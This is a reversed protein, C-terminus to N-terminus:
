AQQYTAMLDAKDADDVALAYVWAQEQRGDILTVTVQTRVYGEGEFDDLAQWHNPLNESKFLYGQVVQGQEDPIIAPYGEAAGWGQPILVGTISAAEFSGGINALWHHNSRNPALTGYVFLQNLM